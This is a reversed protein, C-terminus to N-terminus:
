ADMSLAKQLMQDATSVSKSNADYARQMVIMETLGVELRVNSGELKHNSIDTGLISNGDADKFFIAEGSNNSQVFRSGNVRELGRDNVFHFVAVRGVSSQEGNTFTAIVEGNKNIDYGLLDGSVLGDSESSTKIPSNASIVGDFGSGLDVSVGGISTLTTSILAGREDFSLEGNEAAHVTQGDLSQITASVDWQIGPLTQIPKKTFELRLQNQTNDQSIITASAVRVEDVTGLNANIKVLSTAQTPYTLNEPFSLYEQSNAEGLPISNLPPNLVENNINKGMTGLVHFGDPTVLDRNSDFTFSGDRTYLPQGGAQIGFWGDGHIALDTSRDSLQLVGTKEDMAISSLSTGIGNTNDTTSGGSPTHIMREFLNSFESSYGRYGITSVNSLNDSLVNIATQNAKLGSIGTYFAQTMM